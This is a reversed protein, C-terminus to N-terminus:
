LLNITNSLIAFHIKITNFNNRSFFKPSSKTAPRISYITPLLIQNLSSSQAAWSEQSQQSVFYM